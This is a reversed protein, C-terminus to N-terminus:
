YNKKKKQEMQALNELVELTSKAKEDPIHPSLEDKIDKMDSGAIRSLEAGTELIVSTENNTNLAEIELQSLQEHEEKNKRREKLYRAALWISAGAVTGAVVIVPWYKEVFEKAKDRKKNEREM